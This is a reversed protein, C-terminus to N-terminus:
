RRVKEEQKMGFRRTKVSMKRLAGEQLRKAGLIVEAEDCIKRWEVFDDKVKGEDKLKKLTSKSRRRRQWCM